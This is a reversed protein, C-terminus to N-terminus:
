NVAQFSCFTSLLNENDTIIGDPLNDKWQDLLEDENVTYVMVRLGMDHAQQVLNQNVVSFHLYLWDIGSQQIARMWNQNIPKKYPTDIGVPFGCRNKIFKVSLEDFSDIIIKDKYEPKLLTLVNRTLLYKSDIYPSTKLEILFNIHDIFMLLAEELTLVNGYGDLRKLEDLSLENLQYKNAQKDTIEQDHILVPIGDKTIAVDVEVWEFGARVAKEIAEKRNQQERSRMGQTNGRHSVIIPKEVKKLPQISLNAQQNPPIYADQAYVYKNLPFIINFFPNIENKVIRNLDIRDPSPYNEIVENNAVSLKGTLRNLHFQQWSNWIYIEEINQGGVSYLVRNDPWLADAMFMNLGQDCSLAPMGILSALTSPIDHQAVRRQTYGKYKEMLNEDLGAFILPVFFRMHNKQDIKENHTSSVHDGVIVLLSDQKIEKEFWNYFRGLMVDLFHLSEIYNHYRDNRDMLHIWRGYQDITQEKNFFQYEWTDPLIFPDHTSLTFLSLLFPVDAQNKKHNTIWTEVKNFMLQDDYGWGVVTQELLSDYDFIEGFGIMKLYERQQEFSLDSGHFYVSTYGKEELLEPLGSLNPLPKRWLINNYTQPIIGSFIAPLAQNSKTGAAIAYKFFLNDETIKKLNPMVERNNITLFIEDKGVSELILLIINQKKIQHSPNAVPRFSWLLPYKQNVQEFPIKHGLAHQFEFIQKPSLHNQAQFPNSLALSTHALWLIPQRSAWYIARNEIISPSFHLTLTVVACCILVLRAGTVLKKPCSLTNRALLSKCFFLIATCLIFEVAVLWLPANSELSPLLHAVETVYYFVGPGPLSQFSIEYHFCFILFLNIQVVFVYGLSKIVFSQSYLLYVIYYNIVVNAIFFLITGLLYQFSLPYDFVFFVALKIFTITFAWTLSIILIDCSGIGKQKM